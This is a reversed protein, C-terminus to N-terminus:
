YKKLRLVNGLVHFAGYLFRSFSCFVSLSCRSYAWCQPLSLPPPSLVTEVCTGWIHECHLHWLSLLALLLKLSHKGRTLWQGLHKWVCEREDECVSLSCTSCSWKRIVCDARLRGPSLAPRSELVWELKHEQGGSCVATTFTNELSYFMVKLVQKVSPFACRLKINLHVIYM